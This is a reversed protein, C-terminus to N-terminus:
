LLGWGRPSDDLGNNSHLAVRRGCPACLKTQCYSGPHGCGDAFKTKSCIGCTPADDKQQGEVFRTEY